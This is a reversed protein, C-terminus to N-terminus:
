PLLYLLIALVCPDLFDLLLSAEPRGEQGAALL